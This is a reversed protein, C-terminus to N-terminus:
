FNNCAVGLLKASSADLALNVEWPDTEIELIVVQSKRGITGLRLSFAKIVEHSAHGLNLLTLVRELRM